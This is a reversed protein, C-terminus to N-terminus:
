VARHPRCLYRLRAIWTFNYGYKFFFNSWLNKKSLAPSCLEIEKARVSLWYLQPVRVKVCV